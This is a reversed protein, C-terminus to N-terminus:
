CYESGDTVLNCGTTMSQIEGQSLVRNYIEIRAINPIDGYNYGLGNGVIFDNDSFNQTIPYETCSSDGKDLFSNDTYTHAKPLEDDTVTLVVRVYDENVSYIYPDKIYLTSGFINTEGSMLVVSRRQIILKTDGTSFVVYNKSDGLYNKDEKKFLFSVTFGKTFNLRSLKGLNVSGRKLRYASDSLIKHESTQGLKVRSECLETKDTMVRKNSVADVVYGDCIRIDAVKGAIKEYSTMVEGIKEVNAVYGTKLTITKGTTPIDGVSLVVLTTKAGNGYTFRFGYEKSDMSLLQNGCRSFARLGIGAILRREKYYPQIM